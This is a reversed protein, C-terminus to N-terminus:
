TYAFQPTDQPHFADRQGAAGVVWTHKGTTGRRRMLADQLPLLGIISHPMM